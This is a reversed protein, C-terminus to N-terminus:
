QCFDPNGFQKMQKQKSEFSVFKTIEKKEVKHVPIGIYKFFYLYLM